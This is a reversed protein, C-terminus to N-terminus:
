RRGIPNDSQGPLKGIWITDPLYYWVLGPIEPPEYKAKRVILRDEPKMKKVWPAYSSGKFFSKHINRYIKLDDQRMWSPEFGLVYRWPADPNKFFTQYFISMDASYIIGGPQQLLKRHELKNYDLYTTAVRDSWRYHVDSTLVSYVVIALFLAVVLRTLSPKNFKEKLLSQYEQSMWVCVAPMGWDWWFRKSLFGLFWGMLALLFLPNYIKSVNWRQRGYSWLLIGCVIIVTLVDGEFPQFEYALMRQPTNSGFILLAQTINQSLFLKPHGSLVAGLIIGIASVISLRLGAKYEKALFFCSVPLIFLYWTGHIWVSLAILLTLLLLVRYPPRDTKLKPWLFCLCLLASMTFIYPRGSFIRYVFHDNVLSITLLALFWSEPFELFLLTVFCFIFFLMIVSFGALGFQDCGTTKHVLELISHWGPHTDTKIKDSLVLIQDWSKGSIVKAAHRLADDAPLYGQELIKLPVIFLCIAIIYRCLTPVISQNM